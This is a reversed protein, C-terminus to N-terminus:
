PNFTGNEGVVVSVTGDAVPPGTFGGATTWGSANVTYFIEGQGLGWAIDFGDVTSFDPLTEDFTAGPAYGQFMFITAANGNAQAYGATWFRNYEAQVPLVARPRVYPTTAVTTVSVTSIVPGLNLTLDGATTNYTSVGRTRTVSGATQLALATVLHLDGAQQQNAPVGFYHTASLPNLFLSSGQFNATLYLASLSVMDGLTNTVTVSHREPAFGEAGFDITPITSGAAYNTGRRIIFRKAVQEFGGQGDSQIATLSAVLDGPGEGVNDMTFNPSGAGGIYTAAGGNLSASATEGATVGAFSGNLTKRTVCAVGSFGGLEAQSGYYVILTADNDQDLFVYAIGGKAATMAFTYELPASETLQVWPASEGDQFAVWVPVGTDQCFRITTGTGSPEEVTVTLSATAEQGGGTASVTVQYSGPALSGGASITLTSATGTTSSPDFSLDPGTPASTAVFSVEGTFGGSRDITVTVSTTSGQTVSTNELSLDLSFTEAPAATVTLSVTATQAAVGSGSGRVTLSSTGGAATGSATLTVTGSTQGGAIELASATVGSPLGQVAVTVAGTFGGSRAVSVNLTVDGRAAVAAGGAEGAQVNLTSPSVQMTFAPTPDPTGPGSPGSPDSDSGGCAALWLVGVAVAGARVMRM